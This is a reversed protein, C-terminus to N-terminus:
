RRPTNSLTTTFGADVLAFAPWIGVNDVARYHAVLVSYVFITATADEGRSLQDLANAMTALLEEVEKSVIVGNQLTNATDVIQSAATGVDQELQSITEPYTARCAALADSNAALTIDEIAVEFESRIQGWQNQSWVRGMGDESSSLSKLFDAGLGAVVSDAELTMYEVVMNYM